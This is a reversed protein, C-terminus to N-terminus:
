KTDSSVVKGVSRKGSKSSGVTRSPASARKLDRLSSGLVLKSALAGTTLLVPAKTKSKSARRERRSQVITWGEEVKDLTSKAKVLSIQLNTKELVAPLKREALRAKRRQRAAKRRAKKLEPSPSPKAQPAVAVVHPTFHSVVRREVRPPGLKPGNIGWGQPPPPLPKGPHNTVVEETTNIPTSPIGGRHLTLFQRRVQFFKVLYVDYANLYECYERMDFKQGDVIRPPDVTRPAYDLFSTIPKGSSAQITTLEVKKVPPPSLKPAM